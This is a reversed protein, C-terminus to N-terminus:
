SPTHQTYQMAYTCQINHPMSQLHDEQGIQHASHYVELGLCDSRRASETDHTFTPTGLVTDTYWHPWGKMATM